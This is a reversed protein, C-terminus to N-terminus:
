SGPFDSLFCSCLSSSKTSLRQYIAQNKRKDEKNKIVRGNLTEVKERKIYGCQLLIHPGPCHVSTREKQKEGAGSYFRPRGVPM